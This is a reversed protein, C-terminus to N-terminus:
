YIGEGTTRRSLQNLGVVLIISVVSRFIGIATTYSYQMGMLGIRYMYTSFVEGVNRVLPNLFILIQEVNSDLIHGIRLLFLTVIATTISPLTISWMQRFRGAGDVIAAEYLAPDIGTIAALYIITGWGVEKWIGIGVVIGRFYRPEAIFYIPKLAFLSGLWGNVLGRPDLLRIFIGGIIVWSLFHPLYLITQTSRKFWVARVENLMLSLILPAPFGFLISYLSFLLTNVFIQYFEAYHIMKGFHKLGVWPSRFFGTFLSYDQFAIVNGLLPIYKFILIHLLAPLALLFLAVRPRTLWPRGTLLGRAVGSRAPLLAGAAAGGAVRPRAPPSGGAVAEGSLRVPNTLPGGALPAQAHAGPASGLADSSEKGRRM